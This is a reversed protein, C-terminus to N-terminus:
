PSRDKVLCSEIIRQIMQNRVETNHSFVYAALGLFGINLIILVLFAPPLVRILKESVSALLAGNGNSTGM